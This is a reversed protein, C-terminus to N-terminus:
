HPLPKWDLHSNEEKQSFTLKFEGALNTMALNINGFILDQKAALAGGAGVGYSLQDSLRDFLVQQPDHHPVARDPLRLTTNTSNTVSLSEM